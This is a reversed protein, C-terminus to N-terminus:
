NALSILYQVAVGYQAWGARTFAAGGVGLLLIPSLSTAMFGIHNVSTGIRPNPNAVISACAWVQGVLGNRAITGTPAPLVVSMMGRTTNSCSEACSPWLMATSFRVPAPPVVPEPSPQPVVPEPRPEPVVPDPPVPDPVQPEPPPDPVGPDPPPVTSGDEASMQDM